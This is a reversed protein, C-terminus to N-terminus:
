GASPEAAKSEADLLGTPFGDLSSLNKEHWYAAIGDPGKAAAWRDLTEREGVFDHLPVGYGCSTQVLEIDLAIMQRAGPPESGAFEAALLELYEASDRRIARGRGYLRMILPPGEFACLMLTLRGDALLHAATENGSGTRDLYLARDPGLIRLADTGRPSINVHGTAAASATFFVHQRAIFDRHKPELAAFRQAM